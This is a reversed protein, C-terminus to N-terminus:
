DRRRPSNEDRLYRVEITGFVEGDLIAKIEFDHTYIMHWSDKNQTECIEKGIKALAMILIGQVEKPYFHFHPFIGLLKWEIGEVKGANTKYKINRENRVSSDFEVIVKALKEHSCFELRLEKIREPERLFLLGGNYTNHIQQKGQSLFMGCDEILWNQMSPKLKDSCLNFLRILASALKKADRVHFDIEEIQKM